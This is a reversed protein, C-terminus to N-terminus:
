VLFDETDGNGIESATQNSDCQEVTTIRCVRRQQVQRLKAYLSSANRRRKAQKPGPGGVLM